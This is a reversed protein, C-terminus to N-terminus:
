KDRLLRLTYITGGDTSNTWLNIAEDKLIIKREPIDIEHLLGDKDKARYGLGTGYYIEVTGNDIIKTLRVTDRRDRAPYLDLYGFLEGEGVTVITSCITSSTRNIGGTWDNTTLMFRAMGVASLANDMIVPGKPEMFLRLQVPYLSDALESNVYLTEYGPHTIKWDFRGELVRKSKIFYRGEKDSKVKQKLDPLSIEAGAIPLKTARDIIRGYYEGPSADPLEKVSIDYKVPKISDLLYDPGTRKKLYVALETWCGKKAEIGAISFRYYNEHTGAIAYSGPELDMGFSRRPTQGNDFSLRVSDVPEKTQEDFFKICLYARVRSKLRVNCYCDEIVGGQPFAPMVLIIAIFVSFLMAKFSCM